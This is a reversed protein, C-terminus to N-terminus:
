IYYFFCFVIREHLKEWNRWHLTIPGLLDKNVLRGVSKCYTAKHQLLKLVHRINSGLSLFIAKCIKRHKVTSVKFKAYLINEANHFSLCHM